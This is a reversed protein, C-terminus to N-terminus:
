ALRVETSCYTSRNQLTVFATKFTNDLFCLEFAIIFFKLTFNKYEFTKNICIYM